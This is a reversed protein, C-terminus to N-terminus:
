TDDLDHSDPKVHKSAAPLIAQMLQKAIPAAVRRRLREVPARRRGRRGGPPDDAPAFFIFWPTYVNPEGTEATGTKGAVKVGPIQAATGTGGPRRAQMMQNLAAATAPKMAHKWVQPQVKVVTGGSPSTVRSVLHPEMITGNNAVAAAVLAMQLPTVLLKEQGFALRGPDVLAPNDYLKHQKFNYLGSSRSRARRAARDAAGLLLRVEEGQRPDDERRAEDRHQLLRRQDLARVGAVLNVNGFAEPGNQDLANSIQLGYETCYGPDYFRSSPTYKGSTSRPPPRSRRSRRARRTSARRDRPQLAALGLRPLREALAPHERLGDVVRDQEPQLGAVVGDRLGAGDEPQARGSRRVKGAAGARRDAARGAPHEARPQEGDGDHGEAPRVLKDFITGLNANSATLYANEQREIGARSRGLTSYGVIQSALGNTPYRRFYLTQRERKRRAPEDALVAQRRGRLDPRAQDPVARRAPDRQGAEGRPGAGGVVALVDDRRDAIRAPPARGDRRTLDAQEDARIRGTRLRALLGALLLFNAVVSSGGYSVFPLTIGTLPIIRLVGGVIIFTQLAFGFTLGAALLKSFGDDAQLAIKMGRAVFLMFVLLLAAAGVLGLEQALASYIFDSNVYPILQHGDTTTFTGKGLGAGGFGGNAISYLSKVLQYSECDQRLALGGTAPLLGAHTTWPHLWITVREHVHPIRDYAAFGGALFLAVGVFVFSLRATAVYLMALFIGFYLLGSGLDNSSVLVLMCGGWILLLPGVDKLRAQALVERKERLYAALFVILFIKSFEGPQFTFAAWTCGSGLATSPRARPGPGAAPLAARDRRHRLPVQVARADRYDRRLSWLALAFLVVGMVIWLGQKFADSAGLRYIETVGIATLLGAMPLLYPDAYPM